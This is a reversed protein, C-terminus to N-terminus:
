KCFAALLRRPPTSPRRAHQVFRNDLVLVDGVEWNIEVCEEEIIQISSEFAEEPFLSGDGLTPTIELAPSPNFWAKRKDADGDVTRISVIPGMEFSMRGDDAWTTKSVPVGSMILKREAEQRNNTEYRSQWGRFFSQPDDEQPLSCPYILGEELKKVLEPYIQEMRQTIKHSLVIATQGGEPPAIECFFILKTPFDDFMAMEHHFKIPQDLPAENATYVRGEIRTRSALGLYLHEEWGFAEVAGNFDSASKLPFGRFLLAGSRNLENDIWESNHQIANLFSGISPNEDASPPLLVTPFLSGDELIKQQAIRGQELFGLEKM